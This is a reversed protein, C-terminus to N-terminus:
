GSDKRPAHRPFFTSSVRLQLDRGLMGRPPRCGRAADGVGRGRGRGTSGATGCRTSVAYTASAGRRSWRHGKWLSSRAQGLGYFWLGPPSGAVGLAKSLCVEEVRRGPGSGRLGDQRPRNVFRPGRPAQVSADRRMGRPRGNHLRGTNAHKGDAKSSM